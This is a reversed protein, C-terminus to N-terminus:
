YIYFTFRHDQKKEHNKVRQLLQENMLSGKTLFLNGNEYHVDQALVTGVRLLNSTVAYDFGSTDMSPLEKLILIFAKILVPDYLQESQNTLHQQAEIPTLKNSYKLGLLLRDYDKTILIIRSGIPIDNNKLKDPFGGGNYHENQHKIIQAVPELNQLTSLLQAGKVVHQQYAHFQASDLKQESQQILEDSIAVKGLDAMLAALYIRTCQTKDLQLAEALLRSQFAIRKNHGSENHVRDNIIANVMDILNHFLNRQKQAAKILRENSHQLANTRQAVKGELNQNVEQLLENQEILKLNLLNLQQKLQYRELASRLTLRLQENDWPKGIYSFIHGENVARITDNLDSHGTLLVRVTDPKLAKAQTLLTAGDMKPMRMDSVIVAFAHSCLQEIAEEGNDCSTVQYELRLIRELARTIAVEDDVLLIRPKKNTM